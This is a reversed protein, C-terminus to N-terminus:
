DADSARRRAMPILGSLALRYIENNGDRNSTFALTNGDPSLSPETARAPDRTLPYPTKSEHELWFIQGRGPGLRNSAFVMEGSRSKWDPVFENAAHLTIRWMKAGDALTVYIEDNGDRKSFFAIKDAPAWSPCLDAAPHRTLRFPVADSSDTAIVYLDTSGSRDSSYVLSHGDPSWAPDSDRASSTTIRTVGGRVVDMVYIDVSGARESHFAIATGDPSWAPARDAGKSHTLRRPSTGDKGISYIEWDGTRNSSFALRRGDPSWDAERDQSPHQTINIPEPETGDLLSRRADPMTGRGCGTLLVALTLGISLHRVPSFQDKARFEDNKRRM